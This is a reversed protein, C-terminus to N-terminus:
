HNGTQCVEIGLSKEAWFFWRVFVPKGSTLFFHSVMPKSSSDIYWTLTIAKTHIAKCFSAARKQNKTAENTNSQMRKLKKQNHESRHKSKVSWIGLADNSSAVPWRNSPKENPALPGAAPSTFHFVTGARKNKTKLRPQTHCNNARKATGKEVKSKGPARPARM